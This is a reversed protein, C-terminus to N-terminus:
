ECPLFTAYGQLVQKAPAPKGQMYTLVQASSMNLHVRGPRCQRYPHMRSAVELRVWLDALFLPQFRKHREQLASPAKPPTAAQLRSGACQPWEPTFDSVSSSGVFRHCLPLPTRKWGQWKGQTLKSPLIGSPAGELTQQYPSPQQQRLHGGSPLQRVIASAVGREM